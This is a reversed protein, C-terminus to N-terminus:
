RSRCQAPRRSSPAARRTTPRTRCRPPDCIVVAPRRRTPSRRPRSREPRDRPRCPRGARGRRPPRPGLTLDPPRRALRDRRTLIAVDDPEVAPFIGIRLQNRGLKRYPETDLIGNARLAKALAEADVAEDFDITATVHSREDPKEVFPTAIRARRPGATSSRPAATAGRRAGSSGATASCGSSRTRSCSCPRSRPPTTPRTSAPSSSRSASTSARRCGATPRARDARHARDRRTLVRRALARRRQRLEEPARLLLRRDPDPRLAARGCRVHRRRARAPGDTAGDPRRVDLM